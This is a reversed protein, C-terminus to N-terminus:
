TPTGVIRAPDYGRHAILGPGVLDLLPGYFAYVLFCAATVPLIWGATRRTAELVLVIPITGLTVDVATPDAARYIFNDFDVLPWAAGRM